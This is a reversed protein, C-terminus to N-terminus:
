TDPGAFPSTIGRLLVMPMTCFTATKETRSCNSAHRRFAMLHSSLLFRSVYKAVSKLRALQFVSSPNGVRRNKKPAANNFVHVIKLRTKWPRMASSRSGLEINWDCNPTESKLTKGFTLHSALRDGKIKASEMSGALNRERTNQIAPFVPRPRVVSGTQIPPRYGIGPSLIMTLYIQAM